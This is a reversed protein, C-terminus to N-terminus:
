GTKGKSPGPTPTERREDLVRAIRDREAVAADRQAILTGREKILTDREKTMAESAAVAVKLQAAQHEQEATRRAVEKALRDRDGQLVRCQEELVGIEASAAQLRLQM